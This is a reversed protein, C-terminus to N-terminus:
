AIANGFNQAKAVALKKHRVGPSLALEATYVPRAKPVSGGYLPDSFSCFLLIQIPVCSM